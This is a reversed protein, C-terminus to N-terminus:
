RGIDVMTEVYDYDTTSPSLFKLICRKPHKSNNNIGNGVQISNALLSCHEEKSRSAQGFLSNVEHAFDSEKSVLCTILGLGRCQALTIAFGNSVPYDMEIFMLLRPGKQKLKKLWLRAGEEDSEKYSPALKSRLGVEISKFRQASVEYPQNDDEVVVWLADTDVLNIIKTIEDIHESHISRYIVGLDSLQRFVEEARSRKVFIYGGNKLNDKLGKLYSGVMQQSEHCSSPRLWYIGPRTQAQVFESLGVPRDSFPSMITKMLRTIAM